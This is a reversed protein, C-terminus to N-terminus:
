SYVDKRHKITLIILIILNGKKDVEFIIRYDGIRFRYLNKNLPKLKKAYTFLNSAKSYFKIKKVIKQSLSNDFKNLQKKVRDTYVIETKM